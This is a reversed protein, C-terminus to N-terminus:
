AKEEAGEAGGGYRFSLTLFGLLLASSCKYNSPTSPSSPPLSSGCVEYRGPQNTHRYMVGSLLRTECCQLTAAKLGKHKRVLSTQFGTSM